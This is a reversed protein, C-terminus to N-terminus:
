RWAYSKSAFASAIARKRRATWAIIPAAIACGQGRDHGYVALVVDDLQLARVLADRDELVREAVVARDMHVLQLDVRRGELRRVIQHDLGADDLRQRVLRVVRHRGHFLREARGLPRPDGVAAPQGASPRRRDRRSWPAGPPGGLPAATCRTPTLRPSPTSACPASPGSSPPRRTQSSRGAGCEPAAVAGPAASRDSRSSRPTRRSAITLGRSGPERRWPAPPAIARARRRVPGRRPRSVVDIHTSVVPARGTGARSRSACAIPSAQPSKSAPRWRADGAAISNPKAETTSRASARRNRVALEIRLPRRDAASACARARGSIRRSAPAGSDRRPGPLGRASRCRGPSGAGALEDHQESGRTRFVVGAIVVEPADLDPRPRPQFPPRRSSVAILSSAVSRPRWGREASTSRPCRRAAAALQAADIAGRAAGLGRQGRSSEPPMRAARRSMGARSSREWVAISSGNPASSAIVRSWCSRRAAASRVRGAARAPEDGMRDVLHGEEGVDQQQRRSRHRGRRATGAGAHDRCSVPCLTGPAPRPIQALAKTHQSPGPVVMRDEATVRVPQWAAARGAEPPPVPVHTRRARGRGPATQTEPWPGTRDASAAATRRPWPQRSAARSRDRDHDADAEARHQFVRQSSRVSLGKM